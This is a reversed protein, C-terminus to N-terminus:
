VETVSALFGTDNLRAIMVRRRRHRDLRLRVDTLSANAVNFDIADPAHHAIGLLGRLIGTTTGAHSVVLPRGGAQWLAEAAEATRRWFAGITEGDWAPDDPHWFDDYPLHELMEALTFPSVAGSGFELLRRDQEIPLGLLKACPEATQHARVAPSAVIRTPARRLSAVHRALQDAQHRGLETLPDDVTWRHDPGSTAQGHRALLLRMEDVL